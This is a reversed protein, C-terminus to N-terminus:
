KRGGFIMKGIFLGVVAGIGFYAVLTPNCKKLNFNKSKDKLDEVNECVKDVVTMNEETTVEETTNEEVMNEEGKKKRSHKVTVVM